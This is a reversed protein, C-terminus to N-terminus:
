CRRERFVNTGFRQVFDWDKFLTGSKPRCILALDRTITPNHKNVVKFVDSGETYWVDELDAARAAPCRASPLVLIRPPLQPHQLYTFLAACM